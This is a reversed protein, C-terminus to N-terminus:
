LRLPHHPTRLYQSIHAPSSIYEVAVLRTHTCRIRIYAQLIDLAWAILMELTLAKKSTRMQMPKLGKLMTHLHAANADDCCAKAEM